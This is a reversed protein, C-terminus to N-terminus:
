RAPVAPRYSWSQWRLLDWLHSFDFGAPLHSSGFRRETLPPENVVEPLPQVLPVEVDLPLKGTQSAAVLLRALAHLLEAPGLDTFRARLKAPVRRQDMMIAYAALSGALLDERPITITAGVNLPEETPGLLRQVPLRDPWTGHQWCYQTAFVLLGMLDACSFSTGHAALYTFRGPAQEHQGLVQRALDVVQDFTLWQRPDEEDRACLQTYSTLSLDPQTKAWRLLLRVTELAAATDEPSRLQTPRFNAPRPYAGAVGHRFMTAWEELAWQATVWCVPHGLVSVFDRTAAVQAFSEQIGALDAQPDCPAKLQDLAMPDVRQSWQGQMDVACNSRPWSLWNMIWGRPGGAWCRVGALKYAYALPPCQQAQHCCWAVPFQGTIEAVDHLGPLEISLAQQVAEDWPLRSGYVLAPEPFEGWYNGHYCIEHRGMAAIVDHRGRRRIVRAKEGAIFLSLPVEADSFIRCLSLLADDSQPHVIDEVDLAFVVDTM